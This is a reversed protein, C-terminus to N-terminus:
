PSETWLPQNNKSFSKKHGAIHEFFTMLMDAVALIREPERPDDLLEEAEYFYKRLEPHEVFYQDIIQVAEYIAHYSQVRLKRVLLVISFILWPFGIITVLKSIVDIITITAVFDLKIRRETNM